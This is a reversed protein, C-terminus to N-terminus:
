SPLRVAADTARGPIEAPRGVKKVIGRAFGLGWAVHMTPLSTLLTPVAPPDSALELVGRGLVAGAYVALVYRRWPSALGV